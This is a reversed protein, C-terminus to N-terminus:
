EKGVTMFSPYDLCALLKQSIKEPTSFDAVIGNSGDTIIERVSAYRTGDGPM